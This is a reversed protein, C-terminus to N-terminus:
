FKLSSSSKLCPFSLRVLNKSLLNIDPPKFHSDLSSNLLLLLDVRSLSLILMLAWDVETSALESFLTLQNVVKILLM